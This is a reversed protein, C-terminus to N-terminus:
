GPLASLFQSVLTDCETRQEASIPQVTERGDAITGDSAIVVDCNSGPFPGSTSAYFAEPNDSLNVTRFNDLTAASFSAFVGGVGMFSAGEFECGELSQSEVISDRCPQAATQNNYTFSGIPQGTVPTLLPRGADPDTIPCGPGYQLSPYDTSDEPICAVIEPALTGSSYAENFALLTRDTRSRIEQEFRAFQQELTPAATAGGDGDGGTASDTPTAGESTSAETGGSEGSGQGAPQASEGAGVTSDVPEGSGTSGTEGEVTMPGSPADGAQTAPSSPMGEPDDDDSSSCGTAVAAALVLLACTRRVSAPWATSVSAM